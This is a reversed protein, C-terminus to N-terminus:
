RSWTRSPKSRRTSRTALEEDKAKLADEFVLKWVAEIGEVNEHMDILSTGAYPSEGGKSKNEGVEYALGTM